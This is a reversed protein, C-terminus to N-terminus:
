GFVIAMAIAKGTTIGGAISVSGGLFVATDNITISSNALKGNAISGALMNNSVTGTDNAFIADTDSIASNLEAKTFSFTNNTANLTKNTLTQSAALTVIGQGSITLAM